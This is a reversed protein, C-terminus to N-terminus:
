DGIWHYKQRKSQQVEPEVKCRSVIKIHLENRLDGFEIEKLRKDSLLLSILEEIVDKPIAMSLQEKERVARPGNKGYKAM